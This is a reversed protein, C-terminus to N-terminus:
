GGWNNSFCCLRAPRQGIENAHFADRRRNSPLHGHGLGKLAFVNTSEQWVRVAPHPIKLFSEILAVLSTGTVYRDLYGARAMEQRIYEEHGFRQDAAQELNEATARCTEECIM